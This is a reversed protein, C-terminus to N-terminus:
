DFESRFRPSERIAAMHFKLPKVGRHFALIPGIKILTVIGPPNIYTPAVAATPAM